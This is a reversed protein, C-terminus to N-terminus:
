DKNMIESVDQQTEVNTHFKSEHQKLSSRYSFKVECHSCQFPREKTHVRQHVKANKSISFRKDCYNCGYPKEGSHTRFHKTLDYKALFTKSCVSCKHSREQRHTKEHYRLAGLRNFSATCLSCVFPREGKNHIVLHKSVSSPDVFKKDCGPHPCSYNRINLHSNIHRKLQGSQTFSKTCYECQFKKIGKHILMHMHIGKVMKGCVQCMTGNFKQSRKSKEPGDHPETDKSELIEESNKQAEMLNNVEELLEFNAKCQEKFKYFRQIFELCNACIKDLMKFGYTFASDCLTYNVFKLLDSDTNSFEVDLLDEKIILCFRCIKQYNEHCYDFNVIEM